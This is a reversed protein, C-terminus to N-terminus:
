NALKRALFTRDVLTMKPFMEAIMENIAPKTFSSFQAIKDQDFGAAKFKACWSADLPVSAVFSQILADVDRDGQTASAPPPHAAQRNTAVPRHPTSIEGFTPLNQLPAINGNPPSQQIRRGSQRSKKSNTIGQAAELIEAEERLSALKTKFDPDAAVIEEDENINDPKKYINKLVRNVTPQSTKLLKAVTAVKIKYKKVLIRCYSRVERKLSPQKCTRDVQPSDDIIAVDSQSPPTLPNSGTLSITNPTTQPGSNGTAQITIGGITEGEANMKSNALIFRGDQHNRDTAPPVFSNFTNGIEFPNANYKLNSMLIRGVMAEQELSLPFAPDRYQQWQATNRITTQESM